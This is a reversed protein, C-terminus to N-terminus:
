ASNHQSRNSVTDDNFAVLAYGNRNLFSTQRAAKYSGGKQQWFTVRGSWTKGGHKRYVGVPEVTDFRTVDGIWVQRASVVRTEKGITLDFERVEYQALFAAREAETMPSIKKM